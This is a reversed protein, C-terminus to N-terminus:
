FTMGVTLGPQWGLPTPVSTRSSEKSYVYAMSPEVYLRQGFLHKWGAKLSITLGAFGGRGADTKGDILLANFGLGADLFLKDLGESLPYWRGHVILGLYFASISSAEGIWLDATGGITYHPAILYEFSPSLAVLSNKADSEWWIFGKFLPMVDLGAAMKKEQAGLGAAIVLTLLLGFVLKKKM